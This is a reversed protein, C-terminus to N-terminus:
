ANLETKLALGTLGIIANMPTRIEHSMNSLFESKARTAAEAAKREEKELRLIKEHAKKLEDTRQRVKEDLNSYLSANELSIAIQSSLLHLLELRAQTFAGITLNNELYFVGKLRSQYLIPACLVSKPRVRAIYPDRTFKGRHVADNLVVDDRTRAVYHVLSEPLRAAADRSEVPTSHLLIMEERDVDGDAEIVLREEDALMLLGKQAGANEILLRMMKKLLKEFIIEGSITQSIKIVTNLDLTSSTTSATTTMTTTMTTSPAAYSRAGDGLLEAYEDDLQKVKLRAGWREYWYHAERMYTRAVFGVGLSIFFKAALENGLAADQIYESAKAADIAEQYLRLAETSENSVRAAEASVLLHKHRFNDPCNEAWYELQDRASTFTEWNRKREEPAWKPYLAAISLCLYFCRDAHLIYGNTAGLTKEAERAAQFSTEFDEFYFSIQSKYIFYVNHVIPIEEFRSEDPFTNDTTLLRHFLRNVRVFGFTMPDKGEVIFPAYKEVEEIARPLPLGMFYNHYSYFWAAYRSYTLEGNAIG